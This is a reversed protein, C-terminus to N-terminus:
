GVYRKAIAYCEHDPPLLKLVQQFHKAAVAPAYTLNQRGLQCAAEGQTLKKKVIREVDGEVSLTPDISKAEKFKAIADDFLEKSELQQAERLRARSTAMWGKRAEALRAAVDLYRPSTDRLIGELAAIVTPNPAKAAAAMAEDYRARMANVRAQYDRDLENPLVQLGGSEAAIERALPEARQVNTAVPTLCAQVAKRLELAQANEPEAMLVTDVRQMADACDRSALLDRVAQLEVAADLPAPGPPPAPQICGEARRKVSLLDTNDPDRQLAPDITQVIAEACLGQGILRDADAIVGSFDLAPAEVVPAPSRLVLAATIAAAAVVAVLAGGARWTRQNLAPV